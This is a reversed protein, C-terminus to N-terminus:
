RTNQMAAELQVIFDTMRDSRDQTRATRNRWVFKRDVFEVRDYFQPRKADKVRKAADILAQLQPRTAKGEALWNRASSIVSDLLRDYDASVEIRSEVDLLGAVLTAPSMPLRQYLASRYDLIPQHQSDFRQIRRDYDDNIQKEESAERNAVERTLERKDQDSAGPRLMPAPATLYARGARQLLSQDFQGPVASLLQWKVYAELRPDAGRMPREIAKLVAEPTVHESPIKRFYDTDRRLPNAPDRVFAAYEAALDKIAKEIAATAPDAATVSDARDRVAQRTTPATTTTPLTAAPQTSQGIASGAIVCM